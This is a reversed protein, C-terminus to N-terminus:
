IKDIAVHKRSLQITSSVDFERICAAQIKFGTSHHEKMGCLFIVIISTSSDTFHDIRTVASVGASWQFVKWSHWQGQGLLLDSFSFSFPYQVFHLILLPMPVQIIMYIGMRQSPPFLQYQTKHLAKRSRKSNHQIERLSTNNSMM